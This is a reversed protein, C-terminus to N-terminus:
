FKAKMEEEEGVEPGGLAPHNTTFLPGAELLTASAGSREPDRGVGRRVGRYTKGAPVLRSRRDGKVPHIAKQKQATGSNNRRECRTPSRRLSFGREGRAPGEM